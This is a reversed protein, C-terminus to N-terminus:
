KSYSYNFNKFEEETGPVVIKGSIVKESIDKMTAKVDEPIIKLLNENNTYLLTVGNEKIGITKPSSTDFKGELYDKVIAMIAKDIPKVVSALIKDPMKDFQGNAAGFAYKGEGADSAAKFVGLNCASAYTGVYDAGKSYMVNAVESGKGVDTYSNTFATLVEAKPNVAKVGAMYGFQYRFQVPEGVAMVAGVKNTKTMLGALAGAMFAGENEKYALSMINDSGKLTESLYLFKVKPNEKAVELMGDKFESTPIVLLEAGQGILTRLSNAVDSVAPVELSMAEINLEAEAKKLGALIDDNFSHTGFALAILGVKVKKKTEAPTQGNSSTSSNSQKSGCGALLALAMAMSLVFVVVKNFKKM